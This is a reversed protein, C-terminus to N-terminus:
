SRQYRRDLEELRDDDEHEAAMVEDDPADLASLLENLKVHLALSNRNEAHQLMVVLVLTVVPGGITIALEWWRPWGTVAGVVLWVVVFGVLTGLAWVSGAFSTARHSLRTLRHM